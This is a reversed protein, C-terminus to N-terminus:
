KGTRGGALDGQGPDSRIRRPASPPKRSRTGQPTQDSRIKLDGFGQGATTPLTASASRDSPMPLAAARRVIEEPKYRKKSM